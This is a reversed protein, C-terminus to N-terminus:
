RFNQFNYFAHSQLTATRWFKGSFLLFQIVSYIFYNIFFGDFFAQLEWKSIFHFNTRFCQKYAYLM